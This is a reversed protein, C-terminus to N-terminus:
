TTDGRGRKWNKASKYKGMCGKKSSENDNGGLKIRVGADTLTPSDLEDGFNKWPGYKMMPQEKIVPCLSQSNINLKPRVPPDLGERYNPDIEWINSNISTIKKLEREFSRKFIVNAGRKAL